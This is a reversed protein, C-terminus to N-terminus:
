KRSVFDKPALAILRDVCDALRESLSMFGLTKRPRDNLSRALDAASRM